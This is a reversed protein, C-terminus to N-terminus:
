VELQSSKRFPISRYSFLNVVLSGHLQAVLINILLVDRNPLLTMDGMNTARPMKEVTWRPNEDDIKIRACTNLAKMFINKRLALVLSRKPASGCVVVEADIMDVELNKVPLLVASLSPRVHKFARLM